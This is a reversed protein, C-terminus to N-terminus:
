STVGSWTADTNSALSRGALTMVVLSPKRSILVAGTPKFSAAGVGVGTGVSAGEPEAEAPGVPDAAADGDADAEAVTAGLAEGDGEGVGVALGLGVGAGLALAETPGDALGDAVGTGPRASRGVSPFSPSITVASSVARPGISACPESVVIPGTTLESRTFWASTRM